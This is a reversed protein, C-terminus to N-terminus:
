NGRTHQRLRSSEKFLLERQENLSKGIDLLQDYQKNPLAEAIAIRQQVYKKSIAREKRAAEHLQAGYEMIDQDTYSALEADTPLTISEFLDIDTLGELYNEVSVTEVSDNQQSNETPVDTIQADDNAKPQVQQTNPVESTPNNESSKRQEIRNVLKEADAMEEQWKRNEAQDRVIIFVTATALLIILIAVEWYMRRTM